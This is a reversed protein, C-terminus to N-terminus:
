NRKSYIIKWDNAGLTYTVWYAKMKLYEQTYPNVYEYNTNGTDENIIKEAAAVLSTMSQFISNELINVGIMTEQEDYLVTGSKEMVWINFNQDNMMPEIISELYEDPKILSSVYGDFEDYIIIPYGITAGFFGEWSMFSESLSPLKNDKIFSFDVQTSVDNGIVGEGYEEPSVYELIGDKTVYAIDFVIGPSEMFANLAACLNASDLANSEIQTATLDMKTIISEFDYTVTQKLTTLEDPFSDDNSDNSSECSTLFISLALLITFFFRFLM